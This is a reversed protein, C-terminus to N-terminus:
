KNEQMCRLAKIRPDLYTKLIFANQKEVESSESFEMVSVADVRCKELVEIDQTKEAIRQIEFLDIDLM